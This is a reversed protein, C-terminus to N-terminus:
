RDLSSVLFQELRGDSMTYTSLRVAGGAFRVRYVRFTMGADPAEELLTAEQLSGLKRLSDRFDALTGADFYFNTDKTFLRRNLHGRQLDRLIRATQAEVSTADSAAVQTFTVAPREYPLVPNLKLAQQLASTIEGAHGEYDNTLAAYALGDNPLLVNESIFGSVSGGHRLIIRGGTLTRVHLAFGYGTGSGDRLRFETEMADYSTQSLLTRNLISLDWAILTTVPMALQGAGFYWGPAELHDPRMPGLAHREYGQVLLRNRSGPEDLDLVGELHLPNIVNAWLFSHFRMGSAREVILSLLTYNTNSYEYRTGPEFSLPEEAWRHILDIATVPHTIMPFTYAQPAADRYGSTHTLLNRLTIDRARTLEPFWRAVPDDLNLKGREELLMICTATFLKSNSGIPFAMNVLAPVAPTGGHPLVANGFAQAYVIKGGSLIAATAGPTGSQRLVAEVTRTLDDQSPITRQQAPAATACLVAVRL